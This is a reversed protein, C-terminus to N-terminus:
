LFSEHKTEIVIKRVEEWYEIEDDSDYVVMLIEDCVTRVCDKLQNFHDHDTYIICGFTDYLQFAKEKATMNINNLKM